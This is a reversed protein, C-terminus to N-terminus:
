QTLIRISMRADNNQQQERLPADLNHSFAVRPSLTTTLHYFFFTLEEQLNGGINNSSFLLEYIYLNRNLVM